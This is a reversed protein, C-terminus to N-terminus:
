RSSGRRRARAPAPWCTTCTRRRSSTTTTGRSTRRDERRARVARGPGRDLGARGAAPGRAGRLRGEQRRAAHRDRVRDGVGAARDLGALLRVRGVPDGDHVGPQDGRAGHGRDQGRRATSRRARGPERRLAAAPDVVHDARHVRVSLPGPLRPSRVVRRLPQQDDLADHDRQDAGLEQARDGEGRSRARRARPPDEPDRAGQARRAPVARRGRGQGRVDRGPRPRARRGAAQAGGAAM